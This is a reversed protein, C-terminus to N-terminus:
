AADVGQDTFTPLKRGAVLYPMGEGKAQRTAITSGAFRARRAAGMAEAVQARALRADDEAWKLALTAEVFYRAVDEDLEVDIPEIEPHLARVAQYTEVHEDLNPREGLEISRLFAGAETRLWLAEAPDYEVVYEAFDLGSLLVAVHARDAGVVDMQWVVQARYYPPIQDTGPEGWEWWAASTKCELVAHYAREGEHRLLRDPTAAMWSYRPHWWTCTTEVVLGPHRDAFWRAVPEELYHGRRMEDTEVPWDVLGAMRHWLSFRSEWPSLGVVAAVKSATMTARWAPSGPELPRRREIPYDSM